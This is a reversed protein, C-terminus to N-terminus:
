TAEGDAKRSCMQIGSKPSPKTRCDVPDGVVALSSDIFSIIAIVTLLTKNM